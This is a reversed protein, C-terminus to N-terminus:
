RWLCAHDKQSRISSNTQQQDIQDFHMATFWQWSSCIIQSDVTWQMVAIPRRSTIDVSDTGFLFSKLTKLKNRKKTTMSLSFNFSKMRKTWPKQWHGGVAITEIDKNDGSEMLMESLLVMSRNVLRWLIRVWGKKMSRSKCNILRNLAQVGKEILHCENSESEDIEM